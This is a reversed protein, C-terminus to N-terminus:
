LSLFIHVEKTTWLNLSWAELAPAHTRDRALCTSCAAHHPGGGGLFAVATPSLMSPGHFHFHFDSPQTQSKTVGHFEM